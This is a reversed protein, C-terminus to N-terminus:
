ATGLMSSVPSQSKKRPGKSRALTSAPSESSVLPHITSHIEPPKMTFKLRRMRQIGVILKWYFVRSEFFHVSLWLAPSWGGHPVSTQPSDKGQHKATLLLCSRLIKPGLNILEHIWWIFGRSSRNEFDACLAFNGLRSKRLADSLTNGPNKPSNKQQQAGFLLSTNPPVLIWKRRKLQHRWLTSDRVRVHGKCCLLQLAQDSNLQCGWTCV